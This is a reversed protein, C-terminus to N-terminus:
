RVRLDHFGNSLRNKDVKGEIGRVHASSTFQWISWGHGAWNEAPVSPHRVGYNAIWLPHEELAFSTTDGTQLWSSDNTYIIAERGLKKDVRNLWARIWVRLSAEDLNAFPSEVDLVPLLDRRRLTGVESIFVNAEARADVRAADPGPGSPFARHYAGVRIGNARAGRYNREYFEDAGCRDPVVLCDDGSGRSAQVFAFGIQTRGVQKWAIHEQFRSVDIGRVDKTAAAHAPMALAPLCLALAIALAPAPRLNGISARM